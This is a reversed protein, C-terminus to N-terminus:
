RMLDGGSALPERNFKGDLSELFIVTRSEATSTPYSESGTTSAYTSLIPIRGWLATM